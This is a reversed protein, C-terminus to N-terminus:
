ITVFAGALERLVAALRRNQDNTGTSIRVCHPLGFGALPRSIFGRELLTRHFTTAHDPSGCDVMVFNAISNSTRYGNTRLTEHLLALGEANLEVTKRVFDKDDLAAVAAACAPGNPDFPLKTRLLWQIVDPHGVAYGVRLAALGYAKSFTRLVIVNDRGMTSADPYTDPALHSAYECYAEDLIVLRDNPVQDLFWTLEDRTIHTGTPNNPNPIYIVKTQPMIAAALAHVDFRYDDTLPVFQPETGTSRVAIGFSVFGGRCSLATEGPLLFTHMIQHIIPDSGNNVSIHAPTVGHVDALRARLRQGGDPYISASALAQQAAAIALPSSGSPNENSALKEVNSLGYQRRIEEPSAGPTYVALHHLHSPTSIMIQLVVFSRTFAVVQRDERKTGGITSWTVMDRRGRTTMMKVPPVM